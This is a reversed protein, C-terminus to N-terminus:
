RKSYTKQKATKNKDTIEMCPYGEVFKNELCFTPKSLIILLVVDSVSKKRIPTADGGDQLFPLSVM